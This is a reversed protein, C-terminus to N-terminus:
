RAQLLFPDIATRPVSHIYEPEHEFYFPPEVDDDYSQNSNPVTGCPIYQGEELITQDASGDESVLHYGRGNHYLHEGVLTMSGSLQNWDDEKDDAADEDLRQPVVSPKYDDYRAPPYETFGATKDMNTDSEATLNLGTLASLTSSRKLGKDRRPMRKKTLITPPNDDDDAARKAKKKTAERLTRKSPLHFHTIRVHEVLSAKSTFSRGCGHAFVQSDNELESPVPITSQGCVFDKKREHVTKVHVNLNGRKTFIQKCGPHTCAFSKANPKDTDLIGHQLELHRKLEKNTKFSTPCYQCTPPHVEAIHAQLESFTSFSCAKPEATTSGTQLDEAAETRLCIICLFRSEDHVARQHSKLKEATDFSKTCTEGTDSHTHGCPFPKTNEHVVLIHRKLTEHKRFTEDCGDYGRCRYKEKGEHSAIHRRLRTGTAFSKDCGPWSCKYDRLDSHASKKHHKLHSDRLFSKTCDAQDCKFPREGTHSRIHEQLRANRNFTKSCGEYPCPISKLRSPTPTQTRPPTTSPTDNDICEAESEPDSLDFDRVHDFDDDSFGDM